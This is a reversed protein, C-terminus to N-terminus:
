RVASLVGSLDEANDPSVVSHVLLHLRNWQGLVYVQLLSLVTYKAPYRVAYLGM